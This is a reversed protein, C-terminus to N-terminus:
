KAPTSMDEVIAVLESFSGMWGSDTLDLCLQQQEDNWNLAAFLTAAIGTNLAVKITWDISPNAHLGDEVHDRESSRSWGTFRRL